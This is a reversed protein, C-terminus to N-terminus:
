NSNASAADARATMGMHSMCTEGPRVCRQVVAQFLAPDVNAYTQVPANRSPTALTEYSSRDLTGGGAKIKAVWQQFDGDSMGLFRFRMDTFGAGSYNASFGDYDGPKNIVAHLQTEMGAMTYIMGALTPVYFANMVTQSTLHFDLPRDVPAALQNVSAIGLDRYIFLWKWDLSVVDVELSKVDAPVPQNHAVRDLKRYPDLTHTGIWTMAGLAIIIVLPAAWIWLEMQTSHDWDPQYDADKNSARYKWAIVATMVMVPLIILLMLLTASVLQDRQQLAVDGSPNLVTMNCGALLGTFLVAALSRFAKLSM